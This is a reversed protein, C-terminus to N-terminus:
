QEQNQNHIFNPNQVGQSIYLHNTSTDTASKVASNTIYYEQSQQDKYHDQSKNNQVVYM